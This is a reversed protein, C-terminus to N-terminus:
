PEIFQRQYLSTRDALVRELLTAARALNGESRADEALELKMETDDVIEPTSYRSGLANIGSHYAEIADPLTGAAALARGRELWALAETYDVHSVSELAQRVAALPATETAPSWALRVAAKGQPRIEVICEGADRTQLHQAAALAGQAGEYERPVGHWERQLSQGAPALRLSISVARPKSWEIVAVSAPRRLQAWAALFSQENQTM